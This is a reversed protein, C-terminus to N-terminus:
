VRIEKINPNQEGNQMRYLIDDLDYITYSKGSQIVKYISKVIEKVLLAVIIEKISWKEIDKLCKKTFGRAVDKKTLKKDVDIEGDYAKVLIENYVDSIIAKPNNNVLQKVILLTSAVEQEIEQLTSKKIKKMKAGKSEKELM